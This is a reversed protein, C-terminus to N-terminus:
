EGIAKVVDPNPINFIMVTLFLEKSSDGPHRFIYRFSSSDGFPVTKVYNAHKITEEPIKQTPVSPDVDKNFIFIAAKTDRWTVYKLIQDIAETYGKVGKWFKCEAIFINQNNYKIIIDTKGLYNFTEGTAMGEYHGNLQVLFHFRIDEEKLEKFARPSYEMVKVMNKVITLIYDYHEMELEPEASSGATQRPLPKPEIRRRIEPVKYTAPAGERKKLPYKLKSMLEEDRKFKEIRKSLLQKVTPEISKNFDSFLGDLSRLHEEIKSLDREFGTNITESIQDITQYRFTLKEPSVEASPFSAYLTNGSCDFFVADGEFPVFFIVETGTMPIFDDDMENYFVRQNFHRANLQTDKYDGEIGQRVLKPINASFKSIFYKVWDDISTGRLEPESMNQLKESLNKKLHEIASYSDFKSFLRDM